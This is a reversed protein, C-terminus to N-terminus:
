LAEGYWNMTASGTTTLAYITSIDIDELTIAAGPTLVLDQRLSTGIKANQTGTPSNQIMVEGFTFSTGSNLQVASTTVVQSGSVMKAM